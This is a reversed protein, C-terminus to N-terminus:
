MSAKGACGFLQMKHSVIKKVAERNDGVLKRIDIEDPMAACNQHALRSCAYRLETGVNIKSIGCEISHVFDPEPVGSGGHMVLPVKTLGHIESILDFNIRPDEAYFGHVTGIAIALADIGTENCFQVATKPDTLMAARDSARVGDERGGIRGLEAEVSVGFKRAYHVAALTLEINEGFSKSSADIMVSTYGTDVCKRILDLDLCHDLHLVVPVSLGKVMARIYAAVGDEGLYRSAGSSTMMIVPSDMECAADIIGRADEIGFFNFAGVAYQHQQAPLLVSELTVLPM